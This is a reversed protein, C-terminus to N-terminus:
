AKLARYDIDDDNEWTSRGYAAERIQDIHASAAAVLGQTDGRAM